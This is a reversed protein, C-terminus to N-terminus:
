PGSIYVALDCGSGVQIFAKGLARHGLEKGLARHGVERSPRPVARGSWCDVEGSRIFQSDRSPLLAAGADGPM